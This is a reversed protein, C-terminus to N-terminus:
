SKTKAKVATKTVKGAAHTSAPPTTSSPTGTSAPSTPSLAGSGQPRTALAIAYPGGPLADAPGAKGAALTVPVLEDSAYCAVWATTGDPTVALGTPDKGVTIPTGASGTAVDLPVIDGKASGNGVAVYVTSGAVAFADPSGGDMSIPSGAVGTGADIPTVSESNANAVYVTTGDKSVAVAEPANGVAIPKGAKHTALDIPTVTDGIAGSQGPAFAG